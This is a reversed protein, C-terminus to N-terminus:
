KVGMKFWIYSAVLSALIGLLFTALLSLIFNRKRFWWKEYVPNYTKGDCHPCQLTTGWGADEIRLSEGCSPCDIEATKSIRVTVTNRSIIFPKQPTGNM